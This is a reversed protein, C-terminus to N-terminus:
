RPFWLCYYSGKVGNLRHSPERAEWYFSIWKTFCTVIDLHSCSLPFGHRGLMWQELSSAQSVPHSEWTASSSVTKAMHSTNNLYIIPWFKLSTHRIGLTYKHVRCCERGYDLMCDSIDVDFIVNSVAHRHREEWDTTRWISPASVFRGM